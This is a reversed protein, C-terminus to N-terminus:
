VAFELKGPMYHINSDQYKKRVGDLSPETTVSMSVKVRGNKVSTGGDVV